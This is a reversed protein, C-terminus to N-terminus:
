LGNFVLYPKVEAMPITFEIVGTSYPAIEYTNYLLVVGKNNFGINAPLEFKEPEFLTNKDTVTKNFYGKALVKFADINKFLAKPNIVEGTQLNFNLLIINLIGHAGGTFSYTTLSLSVVEPSEFMIDGDIQAEWKESSEPFDTKFDHYQKNFNDICMEISKSMANKPSEGLQLASVVYNEIELNVNDAILENGAAYPINVEVITNNETSINIKSFVIKPDEQCSLVIFFFCLILVVNKCM